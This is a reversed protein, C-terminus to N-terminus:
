SNLVTATANQCYAIFSDGNSDEFVETAYTRSVPTEGDEPGRLFQIVPMFMDLAYRTTTGILPGTFLLELSKQTNALILSDIDVTSTDKRLAVELTYRRNGRTYDNLVGYGGARARDSPAVGNEGGLSISNLLSTVDILGAGLDEGVTSISSIGFTAELANAIWLQCSKFNVLPESAFSIAGSSMSGASLTAFTGYDSSHRNGFGSFTADVVGNGGAAFARSFSNVLNGSLVANNSTGGKGYQMTFTPLTLYNTSLHKLEHKYASDGVDLVTDTAGQFFSLLYAIESMHQTKYSWPTWLAQLRTRKGHEGSGLKGYDSEHQVEPEPFDM